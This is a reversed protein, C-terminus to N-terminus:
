ELLITTFFPHVLIILLTMQFFSVSWIFCSASAHLGLSRRPDAGDIFTQPIRSSLWYGCPPAIPNLTVHAPLTRSQTSCCQHLDICSDSEMWHHVPYAPSVVCAPTLNGVFAPLPPCLSHFIISGIVPENAKNTESAEASKEDKRMMMM